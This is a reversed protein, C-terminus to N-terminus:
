IRIELVYGRRQTLELMAEDAKLTSQKSDQFAEQGKRSLRKSYFSLLDQVFGLEDRWHYCCRFSFFQSEEFQGDGTWSFPHLSYRQLSFYLQSERILTLQQSKYTKKIDLMFGFWYYVLWTAIDTKWCFELSFDFHFSYVRIHSPYIQDATRLFIHQLNHLAQFDHFYAFYEKKELRILLYFFMAFSNLYKEITSINWSPLMIEKKWMNQKLHELM